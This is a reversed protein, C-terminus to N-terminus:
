RKRTKKARKAKKKAKKKARKKAKKGSAKEGAGKGKAKVEDDGDKGKKGSLAVLHSQVDKEHQEVSALYAKATELNRTIAELRRGVVDELHTTRWVGKEDRALRFTQGARTSFTAVGKEADVEPAEVEAGYREGSGVQLQDLHVVTRFLDQPSAKEKVLDAGVRELTPARQALPFRGTVLQRLEDLQVLAAAVAEQTKSSCLAWLADPDRDDYADIVAHFAGVAETVDREPRCGYSALTLLAVAAVAPRM